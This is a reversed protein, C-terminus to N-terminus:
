AERAALLGQVFADVKALEEPSLQILKEILEQNVRDEILLAPNEIQGHMVRLAEKTKGERLQDYFLPKESDKTDQISFSFSTGLYDNIEEIKTLLPYNKNKRWNSMVAASLGCASYFEGKKIGKEKLVKEIQEVIESSKM